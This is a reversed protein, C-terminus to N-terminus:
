VKFKGVLLKLEISTHSLLQASAYIQQIGAYQEEVHASVDQAGASAEKAVERIQLMSQAANDAEGATAESIVAIQEIQRAMEAVAAAIREFSLGAEAVVRTGAQVADASGRTSAVVDGTETRISAILEAIEQAASATQSSLQRIENAVVTFGRGAAGARAAEISANLSLLNTQRAIGAILEIALQIKESREGLKQVSGTLIGMTSSIASMQRVAANMATSGQLAAEQAAATKERAVGVVGEMRSMSGSMAEIRVTSRDISDAQRETGHAIEQVITTIQESASRLHGSGINTQNAAEAMQSAHKSVEAIMNRLHLNMTHFAAALDGLEDRKHVHVTEGTLDYAAIQEAAKVLRRTPKVISQSLFYGILVSLLLAASSGALLIRSLQTVQDANAALKGEMAKNQGNQITNATVSLQESVQIAWMKAEAQALNPRNDHMYGTVKSVLRKFTQNSEDMAAISSDDEALLGELRKITAELDGNTRLLLEELEGSPELLYHFLMGKQQETLTEIAAAQEAIKTNTHIISSASRDIQHLFIYATVSVAGVLVAVGIFAAMMKQRIAIRVATRKKIAAALQKM